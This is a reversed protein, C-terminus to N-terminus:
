VGFAQYFLYTKLDKKFLDMSSSVKISLPLVNWLAPAAVSFARDGSRRLRSRPVTLLMNQSSRLHRQSQYPILMDKIYEPAQNHLAKYVFMLVKYQIRYKVPLWHLSILVPTIHDRKKTNTMIGAAANQVYQLRAVLSESMGLYLANCYDLRTSIFAHLVIELDKYSLISKLKSLKRLLFFSTKVVSNVQRDFRIESDFFVGLNKVYSNNSWLGYSEILDNGSM